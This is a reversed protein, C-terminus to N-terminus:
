KILLMEKTATFDGAFMKYFYFGSALESANFQIQYKGTGQHSNIVTAIERGFVDFVLIKVDSPQALHYTIITSGNFPNPYNQELAFSGPVIPSEIIGIPANIGITFTGDYGGTTSNPTVTLIEHEPNASQFVSDTANTLSNQGHAVYLPTNYVATNTMDPFCFQSTAYTSSTLRVKFHIHTVRGPYWGPYITIFSCQGNADTLQTGRLFNMGVTSIGGPQGAYGSYVGDKSCHWIDVLVNPIPECNLNIVSFLLNLQLGTYVTGSPTDTRVDQRLM